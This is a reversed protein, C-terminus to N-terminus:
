RSTSESKKSAKKNLLIFDKIGLLYGWGYSFHLILFSAFVRSKHLPTGQARSASLLAALMYFLLGSVYFGFYEQVLLFCLPLSLLYLVFLPPVLQRISLFSKHKKNVFM